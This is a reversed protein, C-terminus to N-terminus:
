YIMFVLNTCKIANSKVHVIIATYNYLKIGSNGWSKLLKDDSTRPELASM